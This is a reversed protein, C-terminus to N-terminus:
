AATGSADDEQLWIPNIEWNVAARIEIRAQEYLYQCLSLFEGMEAKEGESFARARNVMTSLNACWEWAEDHWRDIVANLEYRHFGAQEGHAILAKVRSWLEQHDPPSSILLRITERENM